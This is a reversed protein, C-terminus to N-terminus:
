QNRSARKLEEVISRHQASAQAIRAWIALLVATTLGAVGLTAQSVFLWAFGAGLGSFVVL